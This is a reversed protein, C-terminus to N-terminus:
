IDSTCLYNLIDNVQDQDFMDLYDSGDRVRLVEKIQAVRLDIKNEQVPPIEHGKNNIKIYLLNKGLSGCTNYKARTTIYKIAPNKSQLM